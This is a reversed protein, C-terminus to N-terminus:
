RRGKVDVHLELTDDNRLAGFFVSFPDMGFDSTRIKTKGSAAFTSGDARVDLQMSLPRQVGHMSLTGRVTVSGTTGSCDSGQFRITPFRSADLQKSGLMNKKIDPLDGTPTEGTLGARSRAGSPDITLATVPFQIDVDCASADASSWTVRGDFTSAQVVHDHGNMAADRDYRLLVWLQSSSADLTYRVPAVAAPAAQATMPVSAPPAVGLAPSPATATSPAMPAAAMPVGAASVASPAVTGAVAAVRGAQPAGSAVGTPVVAGAPMGAVVPPTGIGAGVPLTATAAVAAPEGGAAAAVGAGADVAVSPVAAGSGDGVGPSSAEIAASPPPEVADMAGTSAGGCAVWTLGVWWPQRLAGVM